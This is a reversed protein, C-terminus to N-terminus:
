LFLCTCFQLANLIWFDLFNHWIRSLYDMELIFFDKNIPLILLKTFLFNICIVVYNINMDVSFHQSCVYYSPSQLLRVNFFFVINAAIYTKCKCRKQLQLYFLNGRVKSFLIFIAEYVVTDSSKIDSFIKYKM